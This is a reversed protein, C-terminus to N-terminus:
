TRQSSQRDQVSVWRIRLVSDRPHQANDVGVNLQDTRHLALVAVGTPGRPVGCM